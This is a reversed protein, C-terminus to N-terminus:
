GSGSWRGPRRRASARARPPLVKGRFGRVARGGAVRAAHRRPRHQQVAAPDAERADAAHSLCRCAAPPRGQAGCLRARRDRRPPLEDACTRARARLAAAPGRVLAEAQAGFRALMATLTALEAGAFGTGLTAGTAPDFSVNKRSDDLARRDLLTPEAGTLVFSLQPLVLVQGAELAAIAADQAPPDFPGEWQMIPLTLTVDM